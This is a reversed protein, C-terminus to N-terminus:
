SSGILGAAGSSAKKTHASDRISSGIMLFAELTVNILAPHSAQERDFKVMILMEDSCAKPPGM